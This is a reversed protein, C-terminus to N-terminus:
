DAHNLMLGYRRGAGRPSRALEPMGAAILRHKLHRVSSRITEDSRIQGDWVDRILRDFSVYSDPRRSLRDFLRLLIANKSL